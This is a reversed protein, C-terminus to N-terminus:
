RATQFTAKRVVIAPPADARDAVAIPQAVAVAAVAAASAIPSPGRTTTALAAPRADWPLCSPVPLSCPQCRCLAYCRSRGKERSSVALSGASCASSPARRRIMRRVMPRPRKQCNPFASRNHRISSCCMSDIASASRAIFEGLASFDPSKLYEVLGQMQEASVNRHLNALGLVTPGIVGRGSRAIVIGGHSIEKGASALIRRDRTVFVRKTDATFALQETDSGRM